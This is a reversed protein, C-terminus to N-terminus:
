NKVIHKFEISVEGDCTKRIDRSFNLFLRKEVILIETGTTYSNEKQELGALVNVSKESPNFIRMDRGSIRVVKVLLEM